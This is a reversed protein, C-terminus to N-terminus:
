VNPSRAWPEHAAGSGYKPKLDTRRPGCGHVHRSGPTARTCANVRAVSRALPPLGTFRGLVAGASAPSRALDAPVPQCSSVASLERLVRIMPRRVPQPPKRGRAAPSGVPARSPTRPQTASHHRAALIGPLRPNAALPSGARAVPDRGWAEGRGTARTVPSRARPSSHHIRPARSSLRHRGREPRAPSGNSPPRGVRRRRTRATRLPSRFPPM